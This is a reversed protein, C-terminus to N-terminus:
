LLQALIIISTSVKAPINGVGLDVIQPSQQSITSGMGISWLQQRGVIYNVPKLIACIHRSGASVSQSDKIPLKIGLLRHQPSYDLEDDGLQGQENNGWCILESYNTTCM